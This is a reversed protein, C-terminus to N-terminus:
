TVKDSLTMGTNKLENSVLLTKPNEHPVTPKMKSRFGFKKKPVLLEEREKLVRELDRIENQRIQAILLM